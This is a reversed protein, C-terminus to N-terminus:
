LSRGTVMQMGSLNLLLRPAGLQDLPWQCAPLEAADAFPLPGCGTGMEDKLLGESQFWM